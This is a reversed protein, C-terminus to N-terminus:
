GDERSTAAGTRGKIKEREPCGSSWVSRLLALVKSGTGTKSSSKFTEKKSKGDEVKCSSEKRLTQWCDPSRNTAIDGQSPWWVRQRSNPLSFDQSWNFRGLLITNADVEHVPNEILYLQAIPGKIYKTATWFTAPKFLLLRCPPIWLWSPLFSLFIILAEM